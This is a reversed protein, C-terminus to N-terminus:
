DFTKRRPIKVPDTEAAGSQTSDIRSKYHNRDRWKSLVSGMCGPLSRIQHKPRHTAHHSVIAIRITCRQAESNRVGVENSRNMGDSACEDREMRAVPVSHSIMDVQRHLIRQRSTM